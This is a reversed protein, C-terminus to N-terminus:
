EELIGLTVLNKKHFLRASRSGAQYFTLNGTDVLQTVNYKTLGTIELFNNLKLLEPLKDYDARKL